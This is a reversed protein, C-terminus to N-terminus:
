AKSMISSNSLLDHYAEQLSKLDNFDVEDEEEPESSYSKTNAMLCINAEEEEEDDSSLDDDLDEWISMLVKKGKKKNFVKKKKDNSKELDSCESKFHGPKKCEYCVIPSKEKFGKKNLNRWRSGGKKKWMSHIRKSIFSLEDGKDSDEDESQGDSSEEAQVAKSSPAKKPKQVSLALSKTKNADGDQQVELDHVKQIGVLEESSMEDLGKTARLATVQPRWQRPLSRLIKYIHEYNNYDKGNARLENLITQFWGLMSQIDENGEM